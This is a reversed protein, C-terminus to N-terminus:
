DIPKEEWEGDRCVICVHHGCVRTAEPYIRGEYVCGTEDFEDFEFEM